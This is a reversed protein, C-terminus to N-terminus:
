GIQITAITAAAGDQPNATPVVAIGLEGRGPAITQGVVNVHVVSAQFADMMKIIDMGPLFGQDLGVAGAPIEEEPLVAILLPQGDISRSLTPTIARRGLDRLASGIVLEFRGIAVIQKALASGWVRIELGRSAGGINRGSMSIRMEDPIALRYPASPYAHLELMPPGEKTAEWVPRERLRFRLTIAGKLPEIGDSHLYRYGMLARRADVGLLECTRTLTREAFLNDARWAEALANEDSILARWKTPDGAVAERQKKSVRGGFYGPATDLRDCSKGAHYLRLDLVDSDHVSATFAWSDIASTVAQALRELSAADQGETAEDYITIWGNEPPLIVVGRDAGSEVDLEDMGRAHADARIATVVKQLESHRVTLNTLFAGM